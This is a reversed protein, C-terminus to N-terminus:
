LAEQIQGLIDPGQRLVWQAADKSVEAGHAARNAIAILDALGAVTQKPLLRREGLEYMLRRLSKKDWLVNNRQALAILKKEIEIRFGVLALNPDQEAITNLAEVRDQDDPSAVLAVNGPAAVVQDTAKQVDQLEIKYGGPLEISKIIPALWPLIAVVLLFAGTADINIAPWIIRASFALIAVVSILLQLDRTRM